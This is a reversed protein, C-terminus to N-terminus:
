KINKLVTLSNMHMIILKIFCTIYIYLYNVNLGIFNLQYIIAYKNVTIEEMQKENKKKSESHLFVFDFIM